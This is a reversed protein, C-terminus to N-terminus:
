QVRESEFISELPMRFGYKCVRPRNFMSIQPALQLGGLHFLPSGWVISCIDSITSFSPSGMLLCMTQGNPIQFSPLQQVLAHNMLVPTLTRHLQCAIRCLPKQSFLEIKSTLTMDEGNWLTSFVYANIFTQQTFSHLFRMIKRAM